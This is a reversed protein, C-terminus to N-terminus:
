TAQAWPEAMVALITVTAVRIKPDQDNLGQIWQPIMAPRATTSFWQEDLNPDQGDRLYAFYRSPIDAAVSRHAILLGLASLRVEADDDRALTKLVPVIPM